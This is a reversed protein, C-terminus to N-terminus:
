SWRPASARQMPLPRLTLDVCSNRITSISNRSTCRQQRFTSSVRRTPAGFRRLAPMLLNTLLFPGLTNTAFTVELGSDTTERGTKFVGACNILVDVRTEKAAFRDVFEGVSDSNSVDVLELFVDHNQTSNMIEFRARRGREEDRCLLYVRAGLGALRTSVVRGLGSNAGTVVCVKDQMSVWTDSPAWTQERLLYGIKSANLLFTKDLLKDGREMLNEVVNM